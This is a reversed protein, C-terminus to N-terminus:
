GTRGSSVPMWRCSKGRSNGILSLTVDGFNHSTGFTITGQLFHSRRVAFGSRLDQGPTGELLDDGKIPPEAPRRGSLPESQRCLDADFAVAEKGSVDSTVV